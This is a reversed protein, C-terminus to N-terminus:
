YDFWVLDASQPKTQIVACHKQQSLPFLQKGGRSGNDCLSGNHQTFRRFREGGGGKILFNCTCLEHQIDACAPSARFAWVIHEGCTDLIKQRVQGSEAWLSSRGRCSVSKKKKKKQQQQLRTVKGDGEAFTNKVLDAVHLWLYHSVFLRHYFIHRLVIDNGRGHWLFILGKYIRKGGTCTERGSLNISRFDPKFVM